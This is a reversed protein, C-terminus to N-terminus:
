NFMRLSTDLNENLGAVLSLLQGVRLEKQVPRLQQQQRRRLWIEIM